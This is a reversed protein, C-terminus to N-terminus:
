PIRAMVAAVVRDCRSLHFQFAEASTAGARAFLEKRLLARARHLRTKVTEETIDLCGATEATDLEEVERLVFVLRYREPLADVAAELLVQLERDHAQHEPTPDASALRSMIDPEEESHSEIPTLRQERRRRAFAEYLAIRTLWTIFRARGAYQDLHQYARVYAEQMVDEAEGDSGLVARVARYIRQNHRRMLIEFLPTDGARVREVVEEDTLADARAREVSGLMGAM